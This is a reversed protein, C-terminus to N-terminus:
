IKFENGRTTTSSSSSTGTAKREFGKEIMLAHLEETTMKSLDIKELEVGSDDRLTLEPPRGQIFTVTLKEYSDSHGPTKLFRKVEPLHNL